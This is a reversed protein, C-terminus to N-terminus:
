KEHSLAEGAQYHDRHQQHCSRRQQGKRRLRQRSAAADLPLMVASRHHLQAAFTEPCLRRETRVPDVGCHRRRKRCQLGSARRERDRTATFLEGQSRQADDSRRWLVGRGLAARRKRLEGPRGSVCQNRLLVKTREQSPPPPQQKALRFPSGAQVALLIEQRLAQYAQHAQKRRHRKGAGCGDQTIDSAYHVIRLVMGDATGASCQFGGVRSVLSLLSVLASPIKRTERLAAPHTCPSPQLAPIRASPVLASQQAGGARWHQM